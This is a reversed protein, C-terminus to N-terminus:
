KASDEAYTIVISYKVFTIKMFQELDITNKEEVVNWVDYLPYLTLWTELDEKYSKCGVQNLMLTALNRLLSCM